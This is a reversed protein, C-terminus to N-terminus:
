FLEAFDGYIVALVALINIWLGIHHSLLKYLETFRILCVLIQLTIFMKEIWPSLKFFGFVSFFFLLLLTKDNSIIVIDYSCQRYWSTLLILVTKNQKNTKKKISQKNLNKM